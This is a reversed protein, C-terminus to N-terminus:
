YVGLYFIPYVVWEIPNAYIHRSYKSQTGKQDTKTTAFYKSLADDTCEMHSLCIQSTNNNVRCILNWTLALFLNGWIGDGTGLEIFWTPSHSLQNACRM